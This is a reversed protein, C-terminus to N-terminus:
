AVTIQLRKAAWFADNSQQSGLKESSFRAFTVTAAMVRAAKLARWGPAREEEEREEKEEGKEYKGGM